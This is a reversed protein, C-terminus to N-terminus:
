TGRAVMSIGVVAILMAVSNLGLWWDGASVVGLLRDITVLVTCVILTPYWFRFRMFTLLAAVILLGNVIVAAVVAVDVVRGMGAALADGIGLLAWVIAVVGVAIRAINALSVRTAM